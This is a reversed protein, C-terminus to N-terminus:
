SLNLILHGNGPAPTTLWTTGSFTNAYATSTVTGSNVTLNSLDLARDVVLNSNSDVTINSITVPNTITLTGGNQVFVTNPNWGSAPTLSVANVTYVDVFLTFSGTSSWNGTEDREQVYLTHNGYQLDSGPTYSLSTTTTAGVTLDSDDLKYRYTGNGVNGGSTWTWEPRRITATASASTVVPANPPTTDVVITYSGAISWVGAADREQVYLTHAGDALASGPTFSLSTTTTTGSSMDSNNLRYRYTGNGTGGGSVWSWTPTTDNTPTTGSLVPTQPFQPTYVCRFGVATSVNSTANDALWTSYIGANTTDGLGGGRRIAGGSGGNLNGISNTTHNWASNFPGFRNRYSVGGFTTDFAAGSYGTTWTVSTLDTSNVLTSRNDSVWEWGNGAIDWILAGNSLTHTRRQLWELHTTDSCNATNGTAFCPISDDSTAAQVTNPSGDSHGRNIRSANAGTGQNSM